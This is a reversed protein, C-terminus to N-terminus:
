WLQVFLPNSATVVYCCYTKTRKLLGYCCCCCCFSRQRSIDAVYIVFKFNVVYSRVCTLSYKCCTQNYDAYLVCFAVEGYKRIFTRTYAYTRTHAHTHTHAYTLLHTLVQTHTHEHKNHKHIHSLQKLQSVESVHDICLISVFYWWVWYLNQQQLQDQTKYSTSIKVTGLLLRQVLYSCM